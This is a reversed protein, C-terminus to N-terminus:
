QYWGGTFKKTRNNGTGVMSLQFNTMTSTKINMQQTSKQMNPTIKQIAPIDMAHGLEPLSGLKGDALTKCLM